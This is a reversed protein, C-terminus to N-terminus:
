FKFSRQSKFIQTWKSCRVVSKSIFNRPEYQLAQLFKRLCNKEKSMLIRMEFNYLLRSQNWITFKNDDTNNNNVNITFTLFIKLSLMAEGAIGIENTSVIHYSMDLSANSSSAFFVWICEFLMELESILTVSCSFASILFLPFM